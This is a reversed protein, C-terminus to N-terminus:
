TLVQIVVRRNQARGQRTSNDAVPNEEGYSITNIRNLPVGQRALYRRVSEAREAGLRRNGEESGTADTYGQIELYVNQNQARLQRALEDLRAQAETSLEASEVPFKVSDDSLVVSYLFKGEALEGAAIARDLAEQATASVQTVQGELQGVRNRTQGIQTANAQTRADVPGVAEAIDQQTACAGLSLAGLIAGAAIGKNLSMM